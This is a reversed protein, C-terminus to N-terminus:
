AKKKLYAVEKHVKLQVMKAAHSERSSSFAL